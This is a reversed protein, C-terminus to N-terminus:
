FLTCYSQSWDIYAREWGHLYTSRPKFPVFFHLAPQLLHTDCQGVSLCQYLYVLVYWYFTYLFRPYNEDTESRDTDSDQRRGTNVSFESYLSFLFVYPDWKERTSKVIGVLFLYM